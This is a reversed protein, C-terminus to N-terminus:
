HKYMNINTNENIFQETISDLVTKYLTYMYIGNHLLTQELIIVLTKNVLYIDVLKQGWGIWRM